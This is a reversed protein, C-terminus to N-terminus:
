SAVENIFKAMALAEKKSILHSNRDCGEGFCLEIASSDDRYERVTLLEDDDTHIEFIKTIM